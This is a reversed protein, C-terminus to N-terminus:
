SEALVSIILQVDPLVLYPLCWNEVHRMHSNVTINHNDTFLFLMKMVHRAYLERSPKLILSIKFKFFSLADCLLVIQRM